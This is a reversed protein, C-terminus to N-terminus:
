TTANFGRPPSFLSTHERARQGWSNPDGFDRELPWRGWCQALRLRGWGRGGRGWPHEGPDLHLCTGNALCVTAVSYTTEMNLLIQNYQLLFLLATSQGGQEVPGARRPATPRRSRTGM